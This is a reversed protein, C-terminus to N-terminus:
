VGQPILTMSKTHDQSVQFKVLTKPLFCGGSGKQKFFRLDNNILTTNSIASKGAGTPGIIQMNYITKSVDEKLKKINELLKSTDM